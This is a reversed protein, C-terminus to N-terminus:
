NSSRRKDNFWMMESSGRVELGHLELFLFLIPVLVQLHVPHPMFHFKTGQDWKKSHSKTSQINIPLFHSAFVSGIYNKPTIIMVDSSKTKRSSACHTDSKCTFVFDGICFVCHSEDKIMLMMLFHKSNKARKSNRNWRLFRIFLAMKFRFSTRRRWENM